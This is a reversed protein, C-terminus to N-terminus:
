AKLRAVVKALLALRLRDTLKARAKPTQLYAQLQAGSGPARELHKLVGSAFHVAEPSARRMEFEIVAEFDELQPEDPTAGQVPSVPEAEKVPEVVSASAQAPGPSAANDKSEEQAPEAGSQEPLARATEPQSSTDGSTVETPVDVGHRRRLRQVIDDVSRGHNAAVEAVTLGLGVYEDLLMADESPRWGGADPEDTQAPLPDFRDDETSQEQPAPAVAEAALEQVSDALSEAVVAPQVVADVSGQLPAPAVEVSPVETQVPEAETVSVAVLVASQEQVSPNPGLAPSMSLAARVLELRHLAEAGERLAQRLRGGFLAGNIGLVEQGDALDKLISYSDDHM